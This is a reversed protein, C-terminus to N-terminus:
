DNELTITGAYPTWDTGNLCEYSGVMEHSTGAHLVTGSECSDFLAIIGYEADIMLCPYTLKTPKETNSLTSKM